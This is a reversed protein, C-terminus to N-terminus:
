SDVRLQPEERPTNAEVGMEYYDCRGTLNDGGEVRAPPTEDDFAWEDDRDVGPVKDMYSPAVDDTPKNRTDEMTTAIGKSLKGDDMDLDSPMSEFEPLPEAEAENQDRSGFAAKEQLRMATVNLVMTHVITTVVTQAVVARATAVLRALAEVRMEELAARARMVQTELEDRADQVDMCWKAARWGVAELGRTEYERRGVVDVAKTATKGLWVVSKRRANGQGHAKEALAALWTAADHRKALACVAHHARARSAHLVSDITAVHTQAAAARRKLMARAMGCYVVHAGMNTSVNHVADKRWRSMHVSAMYQAQSALTVSLKHAIRRRALIRNKAQLSGSMVANRVVIAAEATVVSTPCCPVRMLHPQWSAHLVPMAVAKAVGFRAWDGLTAFYQLCENQAIMHLPVRLKEMTTRKRTGHFCHEDLTVGAHGHSAAAFTPDTLLLKYSIYRSDNPDRLYRVLDTHEAGTLGLGTTTLIEKFSAATVVGLRYRDVTAFVHPWHINMHTGMHALYHLVDILRQKASPRAAMSKTSASPLSPATVVRRAHLKEREADELAVQAQPFLKAVATWQAIADDLRGAAKYALGLKFHGWVHQPQMRIATEFARISELVLGLSLSASGLNLYLKLPLSVPVVDCDDPTPCIRLASPVPMTLALEYLEVARDFVRGAHMAVAAKCVAKLKAHPTLAAHNPPLTRWYWEFGRVSNLERSSYRTPHGRTPPPRALVPPAADAPHQEHHILPLAVECPKKTIAHHKGQPPVLDFARLRQEIEDLPALQTKRASMPSSSAESTTAPHPKGVSSSSNARRVATSAPRQRPLGFIDKPQPLYPSLENLEDMNIPLNYSPSALSSLQIPSKKPPKGASRSVLSRSRPTSATDIELFFSSRRMDFIHLLRTAPENLAACDPHRKTLTQIFINPLIPQGQAGIDCGRVVAAADLEALKLLINVILLRTQNHRHRVLLRYLPTAMGAQNARALISPSTMYMSVEKLFSEVRFESCRDQTACYLILALPEVMRKSEPAAATPRQNFPRRRTSLMAEYQQVLAAAHRSTPDTLVRLKQFHDNLWPSQQTIYQSAMKCKHGQTAYAALWEHNFQVLVGTILKICEAPMAVENDESISSHTPPLAAAELLLEEHIIDDLGRGMRMM